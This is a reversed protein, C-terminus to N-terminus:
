TRIAARRVCLDFASQMPFSRDMPRRLRSHFARGRARFEGYAQQVEAPLNPLAADKAYYTLWWLLSGRVVERESPGRRTQTAPVAIMTGVVISLTTLAGAYRRLWTFVM